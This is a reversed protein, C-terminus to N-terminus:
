WLGWHSGRGEVGRGKGWAWRMPQRSREASERVMRSHPSDHVHVGIRGAARVASYRRFVTRGRVLPAAGIQIHVGCASCLERIFGRARERM